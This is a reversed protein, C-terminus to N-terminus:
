AHTVGVNVHIINKNNYTNIVWEEKGLGYRSRLTLLTWMFIYYDLLISYIM